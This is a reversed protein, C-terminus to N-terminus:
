LAVGDAKPEALPERTGAPRGTRRHRGAGSLPYDGRSQKREAGTMGRGGARMDWERNMAATTMDVSLGQGRDSPASQTPGRRGKRTRAPCAGGAGPIAAYKKRDPRVLERMDSGPIKKFKFPPQKLKKDDLPSRRKPRTETWWKYLGTIEEWARQHLEDAGWDVIKDPQEKEVFDTLLQFAAHLLVEDKDHWGKDLTTIKLRKM